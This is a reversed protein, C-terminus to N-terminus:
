FWSVNLRQPLSRAQRFNNADNVAYAPPITSPFKLRTVERALTYSDEEDCKHHHRSILHNQRPDCVLVEAVHPRAVQALWRGLGCEELALQRTTAPIAKLHQCLESETTPFRWHARREGADDMWALVCFHAHADLGLWAISKENETKM